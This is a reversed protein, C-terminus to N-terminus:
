RNLWFSRAATRNGERERLLVGIEQEMQQHRRVREIRHAGSRHVSQQAPDGLRLPRQAPLPCM